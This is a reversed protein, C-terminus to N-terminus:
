GFHYLVLDEYSTIEVVVTDGSSGARVATGGVQWTRALRGHSDAASGWPTGYAEELLDLLRHAHDSVDATRHRGEVLVLRLAGSRVRVRWGAEARLELGAPPRGAALAHQELFAPVGGGVAERVLDAGEEPTAYAALFAEEPEAAPPLRGPAAARGPVDLDALDTFSAPQLNEDVPDTGAPAALLTFPRAPSTTSIALEGPARGAYATAWARGIVTGARQAAEAALHLATGPAHVTLGRRDAVVEVDIGALSSCLGIRGDFWTPPVTALDRPLMGVLYGLEDAVHAWGLLPYVPPLWPGPPPDALELSWEYPPAVDAVGSRFSLHEGWRVDPEYPFARYGLEWTGRFHDIGVEVMLADFLWRFRARPGIVAYPRRGLVEALELLVPHADSPDLVRGALAGIATEVRQLTRNIAM